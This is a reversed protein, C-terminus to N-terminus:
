RSWEKELITGVQGIMSKLLQDYYREVRALIERAAETQLEPVTEERGRVADAGVRKLAKELRALARPDESEGPGAVVQVILRM